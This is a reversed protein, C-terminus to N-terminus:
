ISGQQIFQTIAAAIETPNESLSLHYSPLQRALESCASFVDKRDGSLQKMTSPALAQLAEFPSAPSFSSTVNHTIHPLLIAKINLMDVASRPHTNRLDFVHKGQWNLPIGNAIHELGARALGGTDQKMSRFFPRAIINKGIEVTCYDDGVSSLGAAVSALTTGSKGSGGPGILLVGTGKVAVTAAHLVQRGKTRMTWTLFNVFPATPEWVPLQDPTVQLRIGICLKPDFLDWMGSSTDFNGRLGIASLIDDMELPTIPQLDAIAPACQRQWNTYDCYIFAEDPKSPQDFQGQIWRSVRPETEVFGIGIGAVSFRQIDGLPTDNLKDRAKALAEIAFAEITRTM